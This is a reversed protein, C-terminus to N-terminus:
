VRSCSAPPVYHSCPETCRIRGFWLAVIESPPVSGVAKFYLPMLGWMTFAILTAIVGQRRRQSDAAADTM